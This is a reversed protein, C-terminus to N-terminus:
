QGPRQQRGTTNSPFLKTHYTWAPALRHFFKVRAIQEGAHAAASQDAPQKGDQDNRHHQQKGVECVEVLLGLMVLLVDAMGALQAQQRLTDRLVGDLRRRALGLRESQQAALTLIELQAPVPQGFAVRLGAQRGARLRYRRAHGDQAVLPRTQATTGVGNQGALLGHKRQVLHGLGQGFGNGLQLGFVLFHYVDEELVTGRGVLDGHGLALGQEGFTDERCHVLYQGTGFVRHLGGVAEAAVGAQEAADQLAHEFAVRRHRDGLHGVGLGDATQAFDGLQEGENGARHVLNQFGRRLQELHALGGVVDEAHRLLHQLM